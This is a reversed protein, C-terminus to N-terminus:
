FCNNKYIHVFSFGNNAATGYYLYSGDPTFSCSILSETSDKFIQILTNNDAYIFARNDSAGGFAYNLNDGSYCASNFNNSGSLTGTNQTLSSANNVAYHSKTDSGGVVIFKATGAAMRFDFDKFNNSSSIATTLTSYVRVFKNTDILGVEDNYGFSCHIINNPVNNSNNTQVGGGAYNNYIDYKNSYCLLMKNSNRNFDFDVVTSKGTTITIMVTSNFTAKGSLLHVVGNALAVGLYIGDKTFKATVITQGSVKYNLLLNYNLDYVFVANPSSSSTIAMYAGDPSIDMNTSEGPVTFFSKYCWSNVVPSLLLLSLLLLSISTYRM